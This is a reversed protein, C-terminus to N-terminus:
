YLSHLNPWWIDPIHGLPSVVEKKDIHTFLNILKVM